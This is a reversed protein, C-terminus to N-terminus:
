GLYSHVPRWYLGAGRVILHGHHVIVFRYRDFETRRLAFDPIFMLEGDIGGMPLQEKQQAFQRFGNLDHYIGQLLIEPNKEYPVSQEASLAVVFKRIRKAMTPHFRMVATAYISVIPLRTVISGDIVPVTEGIRPIPIYDDIGHNWIEDHGHGTELWLPTQQYQSYDSPSDTRHVFPLISVSWLRGTTDVHYLRGLTREWLAYHELTDMGELGTRYAYKTFAGSDLHLVYIHGRIYLDELDEIADYRYQEHWSTLAPLQPRLSRDFIPINIYLLKGKPEIVMSIDRVGPHLIGTDYQKILRQIEWAVPGDARYIRNDDYRMLGYRSIFYIDEGFATYGNPSICGYEDSVQDRRVVDFGGGTMWRVM